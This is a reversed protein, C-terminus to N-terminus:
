KYKFIHHDKKTMTQEGLSYLIYERIYTKGRKLLFDFVFHHDDNLLLSTKKFIFRNMDKTQLIGGQGNRILLWQSM